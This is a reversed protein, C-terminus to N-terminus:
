SELQNIKHLCYSVANEKDTNLNKQIGESKLSVTHLLEINSLLMQFDNQQVNSHPIRYFLHMRFRRNRLKLHSVPRMDIIGYINTTTNM